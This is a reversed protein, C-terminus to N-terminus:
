RQLEEITMKIAHEQYSKQITPYVVTLIAICLFIIVSVGIFLKFYNIINKM